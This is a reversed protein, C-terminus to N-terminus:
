NCPTSTVVGNNLTLKSFNNLEADAKYLSIGFDKFQELFSKELQGNSKDYIQAQKQHIAEIKEEDTYKAYDPHDWVANVQAKLGGINDRLDGNVGKIYDIKLMYTNTVGSKDKCVLAVFVEDKTTNAKDYVEILSRVDQFTFMAYETSPHSHATGVYGTGTKFEISYAGGSPVQTFNYKYNEPYVMKKSIVFGNETTNAPANVKEKLWNLNAKLSNPSNSDFDLLTKIQSCHDKPLTAAVGPKPDIRIGEAKFNFLDLCFFLIEKPIPSGMYDKRDGPALPLSTDFTKVGKKYIAFDIYTPCMIASRLIPDYDSSYRKVGAEPVFNTFITELVPLSKLTKTDTIVDVGARPGTDEIRYYTYNDQDKGVIITVWPNGSFIFYDKGILSPIKNKVFNNLSQIREISSNQAYFVSTMMSVLLIVRIKKM